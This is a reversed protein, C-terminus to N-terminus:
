DKDENELEQESLKIRVDEYSAVLKPILWAIWEVLNEDDDYHTGTERSYAHVLEHLLVEKVAVFREEDTVDGELIIEPNRVIIEHLYCKCLGAKDLLLPNRLDDFKVQYETGLINTSVM